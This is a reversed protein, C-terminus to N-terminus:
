INDEVKQIVEGITSVIGDAFIDVDYKMEIKVTLEALDLSDLGLETRLDLNPDCVEIEKKGRNALVSNIIALIEDM